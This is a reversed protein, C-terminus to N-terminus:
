QRVKSVKGLRKEYILLLALRVSWHARKYFAAEIWDPYPFPTGPATVLALRRPIFIM